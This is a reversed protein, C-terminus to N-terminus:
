FNFELEYWMTNEKIRNKSEDICNILERLSPQIIIAYPTDDGEIKITCTRRPEFRRTWSLYRITWVYYTKKDM